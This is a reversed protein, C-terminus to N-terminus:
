LNQCTPSYWAAEFINQSGGTLLQVVFNIGVWAILIIVFGVIAATIAGKALETREPVGGSTIYLFGAFIIALIALPGAIELIFTIINKAVMIIDCQGCDGCGVCNPSLNKTFVGREVNGKALCEATSTQASVSNTFFLLGFVFFLSLIIKRYLM